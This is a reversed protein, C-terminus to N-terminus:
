ANAFNVATYYVYHGSSALAAGSSNTILFSHYKPAFMRPIEFSGYCVQSNANAVVTHALQQASVKMSSTQDTSATPSIGDTYNTGDGSTLLYFGITGTASVSSAALTIKYDVLFGCAGATSNDIAGIPKTAANALSNLNSDTGYQTRTGYTTTTTSM